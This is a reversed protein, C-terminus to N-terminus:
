RLLNIYAHATIGKDVSRPSFHWQYFGYGIRCCLENLHMQEDHCEALCGFTTGSFQLPSTNFNVNMLIMVPMAGVAAAM